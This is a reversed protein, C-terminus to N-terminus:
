TVTTRMSASILTPAGRRLWESQDTGIRTAASGLAQAVQTALNPRLRAVVDYRIDDEDTFYWNPPDGGAVVAGVENPGFRVQKLRHLHTVFSLGTPVGDSLCIM